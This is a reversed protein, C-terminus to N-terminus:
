SLNNARGDLWGPYLRSDVNDSESEVGPFVEHTHTLVKFEIRIPLRAKFALEGDQHYFASQPSGDARAPGRQVPQM